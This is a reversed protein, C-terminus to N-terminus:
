GTAMSMDVDGDADSGVDLSTGQATPAPGPPKKPAFRAIAPPPPMLDRDGDVSAAGASREVATPGDARSSVAEGPRQQQQQRRGATSVPRDSPMPPPADRPKAEVLAEQLKADVPSQQPEDDVAAMALVCLARECVDQGHWIM